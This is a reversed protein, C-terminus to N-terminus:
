SCCASRKRPRQARTPQSVHRVAAHRDPSMRRGDNLHTLSAAERQQARDGIGRGLLAHAIEHQLRVGLVLLCDSLGRRLPTLCPGRRGGVPPRGSIAPHVMM